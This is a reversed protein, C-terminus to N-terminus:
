VYVHVGLELMLFNTRLFCKLYFPIKLYIIMIFVMNVYLYIM